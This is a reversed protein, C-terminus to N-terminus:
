ASNRTVAIFFLRALKPDMAIAEDFDKIAEDFNKSEYRCYGRMDFAIADKTGSNIAKDLDAVANKYDKLYYRALEVSSSYM